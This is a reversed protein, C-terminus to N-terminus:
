HFRRTAAFVVEVASVAAVALTSWFWLYAGDFLGNRVPINSLAMGCMVLFLLGLFLAAYLTM